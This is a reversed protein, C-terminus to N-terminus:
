FICDEYELNSTINIDEEIGRYENIKRDLDKLYLQQIENDEYNGDISDRGYVYYVDYRDLIDIHKYDDTKAYVVDKGGQKKEKWMKEYIEPIMINLEKLKEFNDCRAGVFAIIDKGLIEMMYEVFEEFHDSIEVHIEVCGSKSPRKNFNIKALHQKDVFKDIQKKNQHYVNKDIYVYTM